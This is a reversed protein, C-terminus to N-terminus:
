KYIRYFTGIEIAEAIPSKNIDMIDKKSVIIEDGDNIVISIEDTYVAECIGYVATGRIDKFTKIDEMNITNLLMNANEIKRKTRKNAHLEKIYDYRDM